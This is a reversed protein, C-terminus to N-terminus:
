CLLCQLSHLLYTGALWVLNKSLLEQFRYSSSITIEMSWKLFWETCGVCERGNGETPANAQTRIIDKRLLMWRQRDQIPTLMHFALCLTFISNPSHTKRTDPLQFKDHSHITLKSQFMYSLSKSWISFAIRWNPCAHCNPYPFLHFDLTFPHIPNDLLTFISSEPVNYLWVWVWM